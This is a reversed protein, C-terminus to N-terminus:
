YIHTEDDYVFQKHERFRISVLIEIDFSLNKKRTFIILLSTTLFTKRKYQLPFHHSYLSFSLHETKIKSNANSIVDRSFIQKM